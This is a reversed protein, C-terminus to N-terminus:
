NENLVITENNLECYYPTKTFTNALCINFLNNNERILDKLVGKALRPNMALPIVTLLCYQRKTLHTYFIGRGNSQDAVTHQTSDHHVENNMYKSLKLFAVFDASRINNLVFKFQYDNTATQKTKNEHNIMINKFSNRQGSIM